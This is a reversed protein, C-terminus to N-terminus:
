KRGRGYRKKFYEDLAIELVDQIDLGTFYKEAKLQRRHHSRVRLTTPIYPDDAPTPQARPDDSRTEAGVSEPGSVIEDAAPTEPTLSEPEQIDEVVEAPDTQPIARRAKRAEMLAKIDKSTAM